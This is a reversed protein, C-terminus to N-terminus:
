RGSGHFIRLITERAPVNRIVYDHLLNGPDYPVCRLSVDWTGDDQVTLVAFRAEGPANCGLAGPNVYRAHEQVDSRPHHHGYFVVDGDHGKVLRDLDAATPEKEIRAFGNGDAARPYHCLIAQIESIDLSIADPWSAVAQRMATTLQQHTWRQHHWEEDSMWDPQPEPLGHAFWEDHNGMVFRMAPRDLLAELCEAPHPGIGIADGTHVTFECGSADLAALVAKLAPLNAHADTIIGITRM